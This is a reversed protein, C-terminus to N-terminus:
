LHSEFDGYMPQDLIRNKQSQHVEFMALPHDIVSNATEQNRMEIYNASQQLHIHLIVEKPRQQYTGLVSSQTRITLVKDASMM